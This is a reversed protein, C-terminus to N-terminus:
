AFHERAVGVKTIAINEDRFDRRAELVTFRADSRIKEVADAKTRRLKVDKARAFFNQWLEDVVEHRPGAKAFFARLVHSSGCALLAHAAVEQLVVFDRQRRQLFLPPDHRLDLAVLLLNGAQSGFAGGVAFADLGSYIGHPVAVGFAGVARRWGLRPCRGLDRFTVVLPSFARGM